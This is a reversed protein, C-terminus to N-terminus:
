SRKYKKTTRRDKVTIEILKDVGYMKMYIGIMSDIFLNIRCLYNKKVKINDLLYKINGLGKNLIHKYIKASEKLIM